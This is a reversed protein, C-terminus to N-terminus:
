KGSTEANPSHCPSEWLPLQLPPPSTLSDAAFIGPFNRSLEIHFVGQVGQTQTQTQPTVNHVNTGHGFLDKVFNSMSYIM